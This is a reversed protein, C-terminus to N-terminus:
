FVSLVKKSVLTGKLSKLNKKTNVEESEDESEVEETPIAEELDITERKAEGSIVRLERDVQVQMVERVKGGDAGHVYGVVGGSAFFLFM